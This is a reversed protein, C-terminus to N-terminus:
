GTEPPAARQARMVAAGAVSLSVDWLPEPGAKILRYTLALRRDMRWPVPHPPSSAYRLISPQSVGRLDKDHTTMPGVTSLKRRVAVTSAGSQFDEGWCHSVMARM